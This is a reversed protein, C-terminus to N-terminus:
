QVPYSYKRRLNLSCSTKRRPPSPPNKSSANVAPQNLPVSAAKRVWGKSTLLVLRCTYEPPSIEDVIRNILMIRLSSPTLPNHFPKTGLISLTAGAQAIIYERRNFISIDPNRRIFQAFNEKLSLIFLKLADLVNRMYLCM